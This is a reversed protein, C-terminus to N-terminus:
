RNLLKMKKEIIKWILQYYMLNKLLKKSKIKYTLIKWSEDDERIYEVEVLYFSEPNCINNKKLWKEAAKENEFIINKFKAGNEYKIFALM